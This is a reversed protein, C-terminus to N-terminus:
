LTNFRTGMGALYMMASGFLMMFVDTRAKQMRWPSKRESSDNAASEGLHLAIKKATWVVPVKPVYTAKTM